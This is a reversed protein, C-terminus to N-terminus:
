FEFEKLTDNKYADYAEKVTMSGAGIYTKIGSKKLIMAANGGPGNGTILIETELDFIKQATLPGVGHAQQNSARNDVSEFEDKEEDYKLLFESRGFRPDMGSDWDSGKSTFVIKM